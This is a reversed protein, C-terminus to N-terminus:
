YIANKVARISAFKIPDFVGIGNQKCSRCNWTAVVELTSKNVGLECLALDHSACNGCSFDVGIINQQHQNLDEASMKLSM